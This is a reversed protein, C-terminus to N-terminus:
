SLHTGLFDRVGELMGRVDQESNDAFKGHDANNRIANWLNVKKRVFNSYVSADALKANLSAINDTEPKVPVNHAQAIRRLADELVAGVLSPVVQIYNNELLHEAMDIFDEFIEGSILGEIQPLPGFDIEGKVARLIGLGEDITLDRGYPSTPIPDVRENFFKSYHSGEGLVTRLFSVCALRWENYKGQSVHEESARTALAVEGLTILQQLRQTMKALMEAAITKM